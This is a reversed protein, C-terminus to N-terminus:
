QIEDDNLKSLYDNYLKVAQPYSAPLDIFDEARHYLYTLGSPSMRLTEAIVPREYGVARMTHAVIARAYFMRPTRDSRTIEAGVLENMTRVYREANNYRDPVLARADAAISYAIRRALRRRDGLPLAKAQVFLTNLGSPDM